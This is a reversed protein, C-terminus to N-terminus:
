GVRVRIGEGESRERSDASSSVAGSAAAASVPTWGGSISISGSDEPWLRRLLLKIFWSSVV